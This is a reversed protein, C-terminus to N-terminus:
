KIPIPIGRRVFVGASETGDGHCDIYRYGAALQFQLQQLTADPIEDGPYILVAIGNDQLFGLPDALKGAYFDNNQKSRAEAEGQHGCIDESFTWAVWCRNESFVILGPPETYAWDCKGALVTAGHFSQLVQLMRAKRADHVLYSDGEYHLFDNQWDIWAMTDNTWLVSSTLAAFVILGAIIRFIVGSRALILPVLTVLGAAFIAGWMKEVTDLRWDGVNVLEVGVFLLGIAAHFWRAVPELKLWVFCLALWPLYIPWWQVAFIFLPTHWGTQNWGITQHPAWTTFSAVTPWLLVTGGVVASLVVGPHEPRLGTLWAVLLAGACLFVVVPLFWTATILTLLPLLALCIWGVNSRQPVFITLTALVAFITLFQGAFTPHFENFWTWSGPPFLKLTEHYRENRLMPSLPNKLPDDWDLTLNIPLWTNRDGKSLLAILPSSGTFAAEILFLTAWAIWTRGRSIYWAAGAGALGVWAGVLAFSFNYATGIDLFYLRKVVSAGYHQFTYYWQHTYPPLFGDIPPLRDGFCFDLIRNLDAVGETINLIMPKVSKVALVFVYTTTFIAFPLRLDRLLERPTTWLAWIAAGMLVPLLLGLWPLPIYHEICNLLIILALAPVLFALWPSERPLFRRFLVAAGGVQFVILGGLLLARLLLM